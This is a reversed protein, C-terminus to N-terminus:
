LLQHELLIEQILMETHDQYFINLPKVQYLWNRLYHEFNHNIETVMTGGLHEFAKANCKQEYQNFMPIVMVKKALHTAEAPAEFGGGTLLGTCGQLSKLYSDNNVPIVKINNQRYPLRVHKSFVEWYFDPFKEFYNILLEDTYAPLYVTIYPQVYPELQRIESRIIPTRIFSDYPEFHLGIASTSPAYHKFLYEAFKDVDDARPTNKSLFAAQHSFAVCKKKKIKCAWATIPEFDNIILDYDEVPFNYIDKVFDFPRFRKFTDWYDIGGKKGFTYSIGKKKYKIFYPLNVDSQTGSVLLDLDCYKLLHPVVERARSIHGNGTAQIALLIKLIYTSM